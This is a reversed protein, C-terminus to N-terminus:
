LMQINADVEIIQINKDRQIRNVIEKRKSFRLKMNRLTKRIYSHRRTPQCSKPSSTSMQQLTRRASSTNIKIAKHLPSAAWLIIIFIFIDYKLHHILIMSNFIIDNGICIFYFCLDNHSSLISVREFSDKLALDVFM